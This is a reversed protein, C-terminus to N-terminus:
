ADISRTAHIRRAGHDFQEAGCLLFLRAAERFMEVRSVAFAHLGLTLNEVPRDFLELATACVQTQAVGCDDRAIAPMAAHNPQCSRLNSFAQIPGAYNDGQVALDSMSRRAADLSIM